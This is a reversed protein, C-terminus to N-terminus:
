ARDRRTQPTDEERPQKSWASSELALLVSLTHVAKARAEADSTALEVARDATSALIPYSSQPMADDTPAVRVIAQAAKSTSAIAGITLNDTAKSTSVSAASAATAGAAAAGAAPDVPGGIWAVEQLRRKVLGPLEVGGAKTYALFQSKVGEVDGARVAEGLGSSAWRTGANFTLSTLAAKTGEDWGTTHRDVFKRAQEIEQSFRRNAEAENITEGEFRAKTGYGNTFQAYDWKASRDFGEFSKISQLYLDHM